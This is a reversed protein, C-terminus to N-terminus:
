CSRKPECPPPPPPAPPTVAQQAAAQGYTDQFAKQVATVANGMQEPTITAEGEVHAEVGSPSLPNWPLPNGQADVHAPSTGDAVTHAADGFYSLSLDKIQSVGTPTTGQVEKAVYETSTIWDKTAAKANEVSQSPARMSHLDANRESQGGNLIGDMARSASKLVARQSPSLGPFARDIIQNHIDTPWKGSTDVMRLPNNRVYSYTNWQQPDNLKQTMIMMPDPSMFRGYQSSNYRAGFNDLGSEADREKGTFKYHNVTAQPNWEQGFPQYTASWMVNGGTDSMVRASGLHDGHYYATGTSLFGDDVWLVTSTNPYWIQAYLNAYAVGAPVTFTESQYTWGSSTPTTAPGYSTIGGGSSNYLGVTWGLISGSGSQLNVWGGFTIQQGPTVAILPGSVACGAGNGISIQVYNSGTHASASNTQLQACSGTTWNTLGQEFSGNTSSNENIGTSSALRRSGAFIYDTWVGSASREAIPQSNFYVYENTTGGTQKLVRQGEPDYTYTSGTGNVTSIRNEGDYTYTNVGDTLMDGSPDYTIGSNTIRNQSNVGVSLQTGSCKTVTETLLNAWADYGFSQGWCDPGSTAASQATSIRNLNDYGFTQTRNAQLNDAITMVNGNNGGSGASCGGSGSPYFNYTRNLWTFGGSAIAVNGPQLLNNYCETEVAGSGLTMSAPGGTPAYSASSLYNYGVQTGNFSDFRVQTPQMVGNYQYTVKRGSPYILSAMDGALDYTATTVYAVIGCNVPSSTSHHVIRGMPDYGLVTGSCGVSNNAVAWSLRGISNPTPEGWSTQTLDYVYFVDPSSLPCTASAYRKGLMRNLADYCYTTTVPRADVKTLMNGNADYTYNITGSEPNNAQTLRSLSDYSFSRQRSGSQTVSLLNDLANYSYSTQYNLSNPDEWVGTLRRAGAVCSKRAKGAEDTVTICPFSAYNTSVTSGDQEVVSTARNLADYYKKTLGYTTDSTTCYPNSVSFTRGDADYTTDLYSIGSSCTSTPVTAKTQKSRGLGDFIQTTVISPDPTALKTVTDGVFVNGSYNYAITAQGTDPYNAQTPRLMNDYQFSTTQNNPDKLSTMLGTNFDYGYITCQNLPNCVSTPFAGYYTGSYTYTAPPNNKPDTSTHIMGTDYVHNTTTLPTMSPNATSCPSTFLQRKISTLNGRVSNPAAVHQQTVGSSDATSEDYGYDTEACKFAHVDTIIVSSALTLINATSYNSNNLSLFNTTTTSLVPLPTATGYDTYTEATVLGYSSTYSYPPLADPNTDRFMFGSDYTFLVQSEQGNPWTTTTSTLLQPRPVGIENLDTPYPDPLSQYGKTITKVLSRNPSTGSYYQIQGITGSCNYGANYVTDNGMPDTVTQSQSNSLLYTWTNYNVGDASVARSSVVRDWDADDNACNDTFTTWTYKIIGGTPTYIAILDGYSNNDYDFRWTTGDPLVIGTMLTPVGSYQNFTWGPATLNTQVNYVSYCFKFTRVGSNVNAPGPVTWITSTTPAVLGGTPCGTVNTSGYTTTWARGLTDTMTSLNTSGSFTFENGNPDEIPGNYLFQIGDKTTANGAWGSSSWRIGSGDISEMQTNNSTSGLPHKPGLGFGGEFVSWAVNLVNNNDRWTDHALLNSLGSETEVGPGSVGYKPPEINTSHLNTVGAWTGTSTYSLSYTFNLKGRQSHDVILPIHLNLRGTAMDVSDFDGSHYTSSPSVGMAVSPLDQAFSSKGCVMMLLFVLSCLQSLSHRM